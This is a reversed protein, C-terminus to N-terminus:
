SKKSLLQDNCIASLLQLLTQWGGEGEISDRMSKWDEGHNEFQSHILHIGTENSHIESFRVEVISAKDPDDNPEFGVGIQWSIVLHYPPNWLLVRGWDCESGDISREFWRGGKWPELIIDSRESNGLKYDPPWWENSRETFAKFTDEIPAKVTVNVKVVHSNKGM